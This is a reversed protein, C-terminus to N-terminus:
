GRRDCEELAHRNEIYKRMLRDKENASIRSFAGAKGKDDGFLEARRQAVAIRVSESSTTKKKKAM